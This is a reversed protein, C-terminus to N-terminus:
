AEARTRIEDYKKMANDKKEYSWGHTGFDENSPFKLGYKNPHKNIKKDSRVIWVEYGIVSHSIETPTIDFLGDKQKQLVEVLTLIKDGLKEYGECLYSFGNKSQIIIKGQLGKMTELMQETTLKDTEKNSKNM